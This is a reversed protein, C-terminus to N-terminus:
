TLSSSAFKFVIVVVKFNIILLNLFDRSAQFLNASHIVHGLFWPFSSMFPIHLSVNSCATPGFVQVHWDFCPLHLNNQRPKKKRKWQKSDKYHLINRKLKYSQIIYTQLCLSWTELLRKIKFLWQGKIALLGTRNDSAM